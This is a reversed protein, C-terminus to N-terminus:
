QGRIRRLYVYCAGSGGHRQQAPTVQLVLHSLAPGRLWDPLSQRLVGGKPRNFEDVGHVRGKGTIVLIMRLGQKHATRLFVTLRGKAQDATLGHLDLTADIEMKGKLLRQFNRKDMNPSTAAPASRFDPMVTSARPVVKEGIHFPQVQTTRTPLVVATSQKLIAPAPDPRAQKRAIGQTVRAWIEQDEKSLPKKRGKGM